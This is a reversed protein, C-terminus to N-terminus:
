QDIKIVPTAELWKTFKNVTVYLYRYGDVAKPFPGLIDVGMRHFAMIAPPPPDNATGSGTHPDAQCLIPMGQM